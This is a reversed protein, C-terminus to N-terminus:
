RVVNHFRALQSDYHGWSIECPAQMASTRASQGLDFGRQMHQQITRANRRDLGGVAHGAIAEICFEGCCMGASYFQSVGLHPPSLRFSFEPRPCRPGPARAPKAEKTSWQHSCCMCNMQPIKSPMRHLPKLRLHAVDDWQCIWSIVHNTVVSALVQGIRQVMDQQPPWGGRM